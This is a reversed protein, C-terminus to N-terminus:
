CFAPRWCWETRTPARGDQTRKAQGASTTWTRRCGSNGQVYVQLSAKAVATTSPSYTLDVNTVGLAAAGSSRSGPSGTARPTTSTLTSAWRVATRRSTSTRPSRTAGPTVRGAPLVPAHEGDHGDAQGLEGPQGPRRQERRRGRHDRRRRDDLGASAPTSRATPSSTRAAAAADGRRAGADARQGRLGHHRHRDSSRCARRPWM